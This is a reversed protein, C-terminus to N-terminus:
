HNVSIQNIRLMFRTPMAKNHLLKNYENKREKMLILLLLFAIIFVLVSEYTENDKMRSIKKQAKCPHFHNCKIKQVTIFNKLREHEFNVHFKELLLLRCDHFPFHGEALWSSQRTM